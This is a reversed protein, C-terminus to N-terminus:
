ARLTWRERREVMSISHDPTRSFTGSSLVRIKYIDSNGYFLTHSWALFVSIREDRRISCRSTVTRNVSLCVSVRGYSSGATTYHRAPLFRACCSLFSTFDRKRSKAFVYIFTFYARPGHPLNLQSIDAKSRM